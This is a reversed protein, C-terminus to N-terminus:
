ILSSIRDRVRSRLFDGTEAPDRAEIRVPFFRLLDFNLHLISHTSAYGRSSFPNPWIEFTNCFSIWDSFALIRNILPLFAFRPLSYSQQPSQFEFRNENVGTMM